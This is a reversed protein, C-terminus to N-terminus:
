KSLMKRLQLPWLWCYYLNFWLRHNWSLAAFGAPQATRAVPRSLVLGIVIYVLAVIGAWGYCFSWAFCSLLVLNVANASKTRSGFLTQVVAMDQKNEQAARDLFEGFTENARRPQFLRRLPRMLVAAVALCAILISLNFAFQHSFMM